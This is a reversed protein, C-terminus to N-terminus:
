TKALAPDVCLKELAPLAQGAAQAGSVLIEQCTGMGFWFYSNLVHHLGVPILARNLTGYVFQGLAGSTSVAHALADLGGQISPWIVGSLAGAVLAFLGAMIPVLRKGAFFALWEPLRTAHFANYSHGAIIGAFIGGFFSMNISADITKATATLVFYAVAGALGAAGSGDKSLGIAIGLGFLLPLQSFIADGAAAMFPIGLLDPQGLRLLLAAVPLTAIPLMLAKGLKQAYGLINM